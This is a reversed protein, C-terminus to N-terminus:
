KQELISAMTGNDKLTQIAELIRAKVDASVRNSKQSLGIHVQDGAQSFMQYTFKDKNIGQEAMIDQITILPAVFGDIRERELLQLGSSLSIVDIFESNEFSKAITTPLIYGREYAIVVNRAREIKSKHKPLYFVAIPARPTYALLDMYAAREDSYLLGPMVDIAGSKMLALCQSFSDRQPEELEIGATQLVQYLFHTHRGLWQKKGQENIVYPRFDVCSRLSLQITKDVVAASKKSPKAVAQPSPMLTFLVTLTLLLTVALRSLNSKSHGVVSFM